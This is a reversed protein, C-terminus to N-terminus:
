DERALTLRRELTKELLAKKRKFAWMEPQFSGLARCSLVLGGDQAEMVSVNSVLSMHSRDLADAVRLIGSLLRVKSRKKKGLEGYHPHKGTPEAKRHYRAVLAVITRRKRGLGLADNQMILRMATKHHAKRGEMWGIDHLIGACQLLFREEEGLDHYDSLADFISVALNAVQHSHEPEYSCVRAFELVNEYEQCHDNRLCPPPPVPMRRGGTADESTLETALVDPLGSAITTRVTRSVDYEMKRLVVEIGRESIDVLAYRAMGDSSRGASGPGVFTKGSCTSVFPERANGCCILQEASDEALDALRKSPTKPGLRERASRTSGYVLLVEADPLSLHLRRTLSRLYTKGSKALNNHTWLLSLYEVEPKKRAWKAQKKKFKLVKRDTRGVITSSDISRLVTLM